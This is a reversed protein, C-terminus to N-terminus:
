GRIQKERPSSVGVATQGVGAKRRLDPGKPTLHSSVAKRAAARDVSALRALSGGSKMEGPSFRGLGHFEELAFLGSSLCDVLV